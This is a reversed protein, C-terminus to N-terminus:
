REKGDVVRTNKTVTEQVEKKEEFNIKIILILLIHFFFIDFCQSVKKKFSSYTFIGEKNWQLVGDKKKESCLCIKQSETKYRTDKGMVKDGCIIEHSKEIFKKKYRKM